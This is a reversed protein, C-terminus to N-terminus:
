LYHGHELNRRHHRNEYDVGLFFTIKVTLRWNYSSLRFVTGGM